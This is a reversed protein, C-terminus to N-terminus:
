GWFQRDYDTPYDLDWNFLGVLFFFRNLGSFFYDIYSTRGTLIKTLESLFLVSFSLFILIQHGVFLLNLDQKPFIILNFCLFILSLPNLM